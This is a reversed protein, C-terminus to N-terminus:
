KFTQLQHNFIIVSASIFRTLHLHSCGTHPCRPNQGVCQRSTVHIYGQDPLLTTKEPHICERYLPVVDTIVFFCFFCFLVCCRCSSAAIMEGEDGPGCCLAALCIMNVCLTNPLATRPAWYFYGQVACSYSYLFLFQNIISSHLRFMQLLQFAATANPQPIM